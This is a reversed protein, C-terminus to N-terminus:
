IWVDHMLETMRIASEHKELDFIINELEKKEPEALTEKLSKLKKIKHALECYIRGLKFALHLANITSVTQYNAEKMDKKFTKDNPM